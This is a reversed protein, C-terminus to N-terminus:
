LDLATKLVLAQFQLIDVGRFENCAMYAKSLNVTEADPKIEGNPVM